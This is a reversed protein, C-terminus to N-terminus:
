FRVGHRDEEERRVVSPSSFFSVIRVHASEDDDNLHLSVRTSVRFIFFVRERKLHINVLCLLLLLASSGSFSINEATIKEKKEKREARKKGDRRKKGDMKMRSSLIACPTHSTTYTHQTHPFRLFSLHFCFSHIAFSSLSIPLSYSLLWMLLFIHLGFVLVKHDDPPSSSIFM